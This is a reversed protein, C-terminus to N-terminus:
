GFLKANASGFSIQGNQAKTYNRLGGASFFPQTLAAAAASYPALDQGKTEAMMPDLASIQQLYQRRTQPAAQTGGFDRETAALDKLYAYGPGFDTQSKGMVGAIQNLTDLIGKARDQGTFQNRIGGTMQEPIPQFAMQSLAPDYGKFADFTSGAGSASSIRALNSAATRQDEPSMYPILGNMLTIYETNPDLASPVMGRWWAPAGAVNYKQDWTLPPPAAPGGGGGFDAPGTAGSGGGGSGQVGPSRDGPHFAPHQSYDYHHIGGGESERKKENKAPQYLQWQQAFSNPYPPPPVSPPPGNVIGNYGYGGGQNWPTQSM